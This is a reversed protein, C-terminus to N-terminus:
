RESLLHAVLDDRSALTAMFRSIEMGSIPDPQHDQRDVHVGHDDARAVRDAPLPALTTDDLLMAGSWRLIELAPPDLRVGIPSLCGPCMFWLVSGGSAVLIMCLISSVCVTGCQECDAKVTIAGMDQSRYNTSM